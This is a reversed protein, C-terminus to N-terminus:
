KQHRHRWADFSRFTAPYRRKIRVFLRRSDSSNRLLIVTGVLFLTTGMVLPTLAILVGSIILAVGLGMWVLQRIRPQPLSTVSALWKM